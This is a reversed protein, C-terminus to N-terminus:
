PVKDSVGDLGSAGHVFSGNVGEGHALVLTGPSVVGSGRGTGDGVALGLGGGLLFGKEGLEVGEVVHEGVEGVRGGRVLGDLERRAAFLGGDGAGVGVLVPLVRRWLLHVVGEQALTVLVGVDGGDLLHDGHVVEKVLPGPGFDDTPLLPKRAPQHLPPLRTPPALLIRRLLQHLHPLSILSLRSQNPELSPRLLHRRLSSEKLEHGTDVRGLKPSRFELHFRESQQSSVSKGGSHFRGEIAVIPVDGSVDVALCLFDAVDDVVIGARGFGGAFGNEVEVDAWGHRGGAGSLTEDAPAAVDPPASRSSGRPLSLLM